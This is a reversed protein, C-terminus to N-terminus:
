QSQSPWANLGNDDYNNYNVMPLCLNYNACQTECLTQSCTSDRSTIRSNPGSACVTACTSDTSMGMMNYDFNCLNEGASTTTPSTKWDAECAALCTAPTSAAQSGTPPTLGNTYSNYGALACACSTQCVAIEDATPPTSM